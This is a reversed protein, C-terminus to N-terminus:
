LSSLPGGCQHGGGESKEWIIPTRPCDNGKLVRLLPFMGSNTAGCPEYTSVIFKECNKFEASLGSISVIFEWQRLNRQSGSSVGYQRARVGNGVYNERKDM